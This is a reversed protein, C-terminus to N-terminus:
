INLEYCKDYYEKLKYCKDYYEKSIQQFIYENMWENMLSYFSLKNKPNNTWTLLVPNYGTM